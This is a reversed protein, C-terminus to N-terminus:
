LVLFYAFGDLLPGAIGGVGRSCLCAFLACDGDCVTVIPMLSMGVVVVVCCHLDWNAQCLFPLACGVLICRHSRADGVVYWIGGDEDAVGYACLSSQQM